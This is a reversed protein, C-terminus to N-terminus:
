KNPYPCKHAIYEVVRLIRQPRTLHFIRKDVMGRGAKKGHLHLVQCTGCSIAMGAGDRFAARLDVAETAVVVALGFGGQWSRGGGGGGGGDCRVDTGARVVRAGGPLRRRSGGRHQAPAVVAPAHGARGDEAGATHRREM